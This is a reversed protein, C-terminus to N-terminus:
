EHLMPVEIALSQSTEIAEIMVGDSDYIGAADRKSLSEGEIRIAGEIVFIYLGNGRFSMSYTIEKGVQLNTLAFRTDQNIWLAHDKEEPSVVIQWKNQRGSGEFTRQDYRPEINRQKPIVWVQLLNVDETESANYESHRLGTGASMIQIDGARIVGLGGTSDEHALAGKLPITVIEMNGHPHPPFGGGGKVIDDNLARLAGM